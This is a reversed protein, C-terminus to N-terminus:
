LALVCYDCECQLYYFHNISHCDSLGIEDPDSLCCMEIPNERYQMLPFRELAMTFLWMVTMLPSQRPKQEDDQMYNVVM